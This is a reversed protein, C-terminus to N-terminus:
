TSPSQHRPAAAALTGGATVTVTVRLVQGDSIGPMDVAHMWVTATRDDVVLTAPLDAAYIGRDLRLVHGSDAAEALARRTSRVAVDTAASVIDAARAVGGPTADAVAQVLERTGTIRGHTEPPRGTVGAVGIARDAVLLYEPPEAPAPGLAWFGDAVRHVQGAAELHRLNSRTRGPDAGTVRAVLTSTLALFEACTAILYEYSSAGVKQCKATVAEGLLELVEDGPPTAAIEAAAAHMVDLIAQHAGPRAVIPRLDVPLGLPEDSVVICPIGEPLGARARGIAQRLTARVIGQHSQRWVPDAYGKAYLTAAEGTVTTATWTHRCWAGDAKGAAEHDGQVALRRRVSGPNPRPTGVVLLLDVDRHWTNSARDPGAGYHTAMVVRELLHPPLVDSGGATLAAVHRQHGILGVRRHEDHEELLAVVIGRVRDPSTTMTVDIPRQEVQHVAALHGPPTIDAVPAGALKELVAQDATGDLLHVVKGDLGPRWHVVVHRVIGGDLTRDASVFTEVGHGGAVAVVLRLADPPPADVKRGAIMDAVLRQWGGPMAGAAHVDILQVGPETVGRAAVVLEEALDRLRSATAGLEVQRDAAPDPGTWDDFSQMAVGTAESAVVDFFRGVAEVDDPPCTITPAIAEDPREDIVLVTRDIMDGSAWSRRYHEATTLLHRRRKAADAQRRYACGSALPCTPCVAMGHSLGAARAASAAEMNACNEATLEPMIGVHRPSHGAELMETYRERLNAHTPLLQVSRVPETRWVKVKGAKRRMTREVQRTGLHQLAHLTARTKGAGTPARDLTIGPVTLAERKGAALDARFEELARPESAPITGDEHPPRTAGAVVVAAEAYAALVAEADAGSAVLQRSDKHPEPPLTWCVDRYLAAALGEAIAVAGERGPWRGDPKEDREGVVVIGRDIPWQGLLPILHQLGGRASPRGVAALGLGALAAVDSAGEVILVPGDGQHWLELAYFLAHRGGRITRKDGSPFRTVLGTVTGAADLTPFSWAHGTWGVGLAELMAVQVGLEDALMHLRGRAENAFEGSLTAWPRTPAASPAAATARVRYVAPDYALGDARDIGIGVFKFRPVGDRYDAVRAFGPPAALEHGRHCRLERHDRTASCWDPKGCVLCPRARTAEVWDGAV